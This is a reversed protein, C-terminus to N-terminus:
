TIRMTECNNKRMVLSMLFFLQSVIRLVNGGNALRATGPALRFPQPDPDVNPPQSVEADASVDFVENVRELSGLGGGYVVDQDAVLPLELFQASQPRIELEQRRGRRRM